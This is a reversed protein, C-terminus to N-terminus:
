FTVIVSFPDLEDVHIASYQDLESFVDARTFLHGGHGLHLVSQDIGHFAVYSDKVARM